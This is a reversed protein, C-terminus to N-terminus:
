RSSPPVATSPGLYTFEIDIAAASGATLAIAAATAGAKLTTGWTRTQM